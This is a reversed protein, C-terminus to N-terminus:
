PKSTFIRYGKEDAARLMERDGSTDGYAATLHMDEGFVAKLRKVKEIGRCNVGELPGRVKGNADVSLKSGILMDAGLGRAFPAVITEPSATVIVIKAGNARWRRWAAVADPRLLSQAHAKAFERASAELEDLTMGRLFERVFRGKLRGRDRHFVYGLLSPTLKILGRTWRGAGAKWKLFAVFSDRATLTGDFDFAVLANTEFHDNMMM